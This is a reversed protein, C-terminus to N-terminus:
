SNIISHISDIDNLLDNNFYNKEDKNFNNNVDNKSYTRM